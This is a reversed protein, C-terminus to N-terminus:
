NFDVWAAGSYGQFTTGTLVVMGATPSTIAADRATSDAFAPLKFPVTGTIASSSVTMRVASTGVANTALFELRGPITASAPTGDVVGKIKAASFFNADPLYFGNFDFTAIEDNVVVSEPLIPNPGKARLFTMTAGIQPGTFQEPVITSFSPSTSASTHTTNIIFPTNTASATPISIGANFIDNFLELRTAVVTTQVNLLIPLACTQVGTV